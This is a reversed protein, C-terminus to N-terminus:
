KRVASAAERALSFPNKELTRKDLAFKTSTSVMIWILTFCNKCLLREGVIPFQKRRM